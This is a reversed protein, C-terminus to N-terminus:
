KSVGCGADRAPIEILLGWEVAWVRITARAGEGAHKGANQLAELCCFYVAAEIEPTYRGIGEAHVETPLAARGAAATLAEGLGRDMLLPPYIGHALDRLQQVADQLDHGWQDLMEKATDPDSGALQRAVRLNERWAGRHQRAG